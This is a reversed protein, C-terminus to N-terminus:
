ESTMKVANEYMKLRIVEISMSRKRVGNRETYKELPQKFKYIKKKYKFASMKEKLKWIENFLIDKKRKIM